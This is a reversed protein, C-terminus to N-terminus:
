VTDSLGPLDSLDCYVGQGANCNTWEVFTYASADVTDADTIIQISDVTRDAAEYILTTAVRRTYTKPLVGSTLANTKPEMYITDIRLSDGSSNKYVRTLEM